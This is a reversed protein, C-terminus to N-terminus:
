THVFVNPICLCGTLICEHESVRLCVIFVKLLKENLQKVGTFSESM